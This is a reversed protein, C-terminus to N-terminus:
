AKKKNVFTDKISDVADRMLLVMKNDLVKYANLMNATLIQVGEINRAARLVKQSEADLKPLILLVKKDKAELNELVQAMIKTKPELAELGKVIRIEQDRFKSSLASFLALTKMKKSINLSLDRPKPGFAVGGGVFLPARKSGHRARGTGKQQWVKRTTANIEGRDKTKATGQRKNALYVRVAQSMLSDNIKANFIEASLSVTGSVKGKTDFVSVNLSVGKSKAEVPKAVSKIPAKKVSVKKVVSKVAKSKVVVKAKQNQKASNAKLSKSPM